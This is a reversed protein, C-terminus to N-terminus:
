KIIIINGNKYAHLEGVENILDLNNEIPKNMDIWLNFHINMLKENSCMVSVNYYRGIIRFVETLTKNDFYFFGSKWEVYERIDVNEVDIRGNPSVEMNQGPLLRVPSHNSTKVQVSGEVLTINSPEERYNRVNFETGLVKTEINGSEVVFPHVVDKAVKFYAEGSLTIRRENGTFVSPFTIQSHSNIWVITGDSLTVCYTKGDPVSLTSSEAKGDETYIIENDALVAGHSRVMTGASDSQLNIAKNGVYLLVGDTSDNAEYVITTQRLFPNHKSFLLGGGIGLIFILSAAATWLIRKKKRRWEMMKKFHNLEEEADINLINQGRAVAEKIILEDDGTLQYQEKELFEEAM